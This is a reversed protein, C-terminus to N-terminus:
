DGNKGLIFDELVQRGVVIRSGLRLAGPLRGESALNYALQKGIGLRQAAQTVSLTASPLSHGSEYQVMQM